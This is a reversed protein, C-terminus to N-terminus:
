GGCYRHVEVWDVEMKVEDGDTLAGKFLDLQIALFHEADTILDRATETLRKGRVKGSSPDVWSIELYEPTWDMSLEQWETADGLHVFETQSVGDAESDFPEHIFSYFPTRDAPAPLTEYINNEGDLPQSESVPWTLVVGSTANSPDPDTRVRFAYRGYAQPYDLRIGGSSAVGTEDNSATIVLKGDEVSVADARRVAHESHNGKSTYVTWAPNLVTGDFDDRFLPEFCAPAVTTATAQPNTALPPKVADGASSDDAGLDDTGPDGAGGTNGDATNVTEAGVPQGSVAKVAKGAQPAVVAAAANEGGDGAGETGTTQGNTDPWALFGLTVLVAALAMPPVVRRCFRGVARWLHRVEGGTKGIIGSRM